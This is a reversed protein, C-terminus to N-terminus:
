ALKASKRGPQLIEPVSRILRTRFGSIAPLSFGQNASRPNPHRYIPFSTMYCVGKRSFFFPVPCIKRMRKARARMTPVALMIAEPMPADGMEM